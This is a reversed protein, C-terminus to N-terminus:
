VKKDHGKNVWPLTKYVERAEKKAYSLMIGTKTDDSKETSETGALFWFLQNKFNKCNKSIIGTFSIPDPVKCFSM